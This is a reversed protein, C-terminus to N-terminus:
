FWSFIWRGVAKLNATYEADLWTGNADTMGLAHNGHTVMVKFNPGKGALFELLHRTECLPDSTGNVVLVPRTETALTPYNENMYNQAPEGEKEAHSCVPTLLVLSPHKAERRFIDHSVFSGLSKGGLVIQERTLSLDTALKQIATEMDEIENELMGSPQGKAPDAVCYAWYLRALRVGTDQSEEALRDYMELRANCGQGPALLMLRTAGPAGDYLDIVIKAGRPTLIEVSKKAPAALTSLSILPVFLLPLIFRM